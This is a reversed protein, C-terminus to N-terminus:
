KLIAWRSKNWLKQRDKRSGAVLEVTTFLLLDALRYNVKRKIMRETRSIVLIIYM